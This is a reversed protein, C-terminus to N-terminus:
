GNVRKRLDNVQALSSALGEKFFALDSGVTGIKGGRTLWKECIDFSGTFMGWPVGAAKCRDLVHQIAQDVREKGEHPMYGMTWGLDAPGIMIGDIGEVQLIKDINEVAKASEIQPWVIVEDNATEAYKESGGYKPAGSPGWSRNGKPPYKAGSVGKAVDEPTETLPLIVGDAGADLAQNVLWPECYTVRVIIERTNGLNMVMRRLMDPGVAGHQGDVLMFDFDSAGIMHNVIPHEMIPVTGIVAKGALLKEKTKNKM